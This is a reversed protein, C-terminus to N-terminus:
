PTTARRSGGSTLASPRATTGPEPAVATTQCGFVVNVSEHWRDAFVLWCWEDVPKLDLAEDLESIM